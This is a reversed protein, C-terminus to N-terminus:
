EEKEKIRKLSSITTSVIGLSVSLLYKYYNSLCKIRQSKNEFKLGNEYYNLVQEGEIFSNEGVKWWVLLVQGKNELELIYRLKEITIEDSYILFSCGGKSYKYVRLEEVFNLISLNVMVSDLKKEKLSSKLDRVIGENSVQVWVVLKNNRFISKLNSILWLTKGKKQKM